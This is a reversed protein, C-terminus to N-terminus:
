NVTISIPSLDHVVDNVDKAKINEFILRDGRKAKKVFRETEETFKGSGEQHHTFVDRGQILVIDFSKTTAVINFLFSPDYSVVLGLQADVTGKQMRGSTTIEGFRAYPKPLRKVRFNMKGMSKTEGNSMKASVNVDVEMPSNKQIKMTYTGNGNKVLQNGGTVTAVVNEAAVGPVSISVPNDVGMYFVNMATPSVVMSPRAVIYESKFPYLKQQGSPSTMKVMGEYNFIGEKSARVVYEGMGNVAPVSGSESVLATGDNNLKGLVIEPNKTTSFAAVFVNAKYEDGLMVYNSETLVKAAITDFPFDEKTFSKYLTNVVDFEANKVDSQFKSLIAVSAVLPSNYFQNTEWTKTGDKKTRDPTEFGLNLNKREKEPVLALMAERYENLKIKLERAKGNSGDETNGVLINTPRDFDDQKKVYDLHITDAEAISIGETAAILEVKLKRIYENLESSLEKARNAKEWYATVKKPDVSKAQDFDAYLMGNKEDFNGATAELSTNVTVFAEIVEKSVNLALIATLVLYMMAIMKQRPTEKGGAM